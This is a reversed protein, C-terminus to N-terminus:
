PDSLGCREEGGEEGGYGGVGGNVRESENRYGAATLQFGIIHSYPEKVSVADPGLIREAEREFGVFIRSPLNFHLRAPIGSLSITAMNQKM